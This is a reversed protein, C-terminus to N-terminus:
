AACRDREILALLEDAFVRAPDPPVLKRIAEGARRGIERLRDRQQWARELAADYAEETPADALFGTVGDDVVEPNGAVATVIPVRGSLMAEVVVLPLGEGRSSLALCHHDDWIAAPNASHGGFRVRDLGLYSAMGRLGDAHPGAGFFTLDVPRERWKPQALVRLLIDQGKFIPQLRGVCALRLREGGPWDDRRQWPVRFCNRVVSARELRMGLQEETLERTHESVFFAHRAKRYLFRHRHWRASTELWTADSAHQIIQVFPYGRAACARALWLGEVSAGQSIVVLDPQQLRLGLSFRAAGYTRAM